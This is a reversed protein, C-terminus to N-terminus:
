SPIKRGGVNDQCTTFAKNKCEQMLSRMQRYSAWTGKIHNHKGCCAVCNGRVYGRQNDKRDIGVHLKLSHIADGYACPKKLIARFEALTLTFQLGRRKASARTNRYKGGISHAHRYWKAKLKKIDRM